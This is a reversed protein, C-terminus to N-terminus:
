FSTQVLFVFLDKLTHHTYKDHVSNGVLREACTAM